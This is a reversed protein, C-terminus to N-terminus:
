WLGIHHEARTQDRGFVGCTLSKTPEVRGYIYKDQLGDIQGEAGLRFHHDMLNHGRENSSSGLGGTARKTNKDCVVDSAIAFPKLTLRSTAM